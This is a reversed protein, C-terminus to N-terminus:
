QVKLAERVSELLTSPGFPKRLIANAGLEKATFLHNTTGLLRGAGSMAIIRLTPFEQKLDRITEIGEKDPMLIDTIVLEARSERQLAIGQAGNSAHVVEHGASELVGSVVARVDEDDDIILIRAM